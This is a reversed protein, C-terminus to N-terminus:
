ERVLLVQAPGSDGIFRTDIIRLTYGRPRKRTHGSCNRRRAPYVALLSPSRGPGAGFMGGNVPDVPSSPKPVSLRRDSKEAPGRSSTRARRRPPKPSRGMEKPVLQGGGAAPGTAASAFLDAADFYARASAETKRDRALAQAQQMTREAEKFKPRGSVRRALAKTREQSARARAQDLVKPSLAHLGKDAPAYELAETLVSLAREADKKELLTQVHKRFNAVTTENPVGAPTPSVTGTTAAPPEAAPGPPAPPPEPEAAAPGPPVTATEPSAPATSVPAAPTAASVPATATPQKQAAM